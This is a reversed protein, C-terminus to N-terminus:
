QDFRQLNKTGRIYCERITAEYLIYQIDPTTTASEPVVTDLVTVSQLDCHITKSSISVNSINRGNDYNYLHRSTWILHFAPGSITHCSGM